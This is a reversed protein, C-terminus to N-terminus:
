ESTTQVALQDYFHKLSDLTELTSTDANKQADSLAILAKPITTWPLTIDESLVRQRKWADLETRISQPLIDPQEEYVLRHAM